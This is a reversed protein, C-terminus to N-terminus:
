KGELKGLRKNLNANAALAMMLARRGDIMKGEPTEKVLTAGAKTKEADQAMFGYNSAGGHQPKKYDFKYAKISALFEEIDSDSESINEKLNKDSIAGVISGVTGLFGADSEQQRGAMSEAQAAALQQQQQWSQFQQQQMQQQAMMEAQDRNYGQQTYFAVMQDNMQRQQMAADLNAMGAQQQFGAAGMREQLGQRSTEGLAGSYLQEATAQEQARLQGLGRASEQGSTALNQQLQRDAAGVPGGRSSARAAMLDAMNRDQARGYSIEAASTGRGQARNRLMDLMQQQQGGYQNPALQAANMSAANRDGMNRININAQNAGASGMTAPQGGGWYGQSPDYTSKAPEMSGSVDQRSIDGSIWSFPDNMISKDGKFPDSFGM